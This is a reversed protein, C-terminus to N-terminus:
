NYFMYTRMKLVLQLATTIDISEGLALAPAEVPVISDKLNEGLNVILIAVQALFVSAIEVMARMPQGNSSILSVVGM